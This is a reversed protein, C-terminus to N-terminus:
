PKATILLPRGNAGPRLARVCLALEVALRGFGGWLQEPTERVTFFIRM